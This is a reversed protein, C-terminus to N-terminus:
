TLYDLTSSNCVHIRLTNCVHALTTFRDALQLVHSDTNSFEGYCALKPYAPWSSLGAFLIYVEKLLNGKEKSASFQVQVCVCM